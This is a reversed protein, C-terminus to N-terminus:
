LLLSMLRVASKNQMVRVNVQLFWVTEIKAKLQCVKVPSQCTYACTTGYILLNCNPAQTLM